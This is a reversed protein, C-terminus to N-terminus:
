KFEVCICIHLVEKKKLRIHLFGTPIKIYLYGQMHTHVNFNFSKKQKSLFCIIM